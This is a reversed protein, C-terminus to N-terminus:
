AKVARAWYAAPSVPDGLTVLDRITFARLLYRFGFETFRWFDLPARHIKQSFPVGVLLAGGSKLVRHCEAVAAHCDDVHELVGSCFVTDFSGSSIEPMARVDLRLDCGDVVDSTIYTTAHPFYDRYSRGQKDSDGASGISLVDGRVEAGWAQLLTNTDRREMSVTSM